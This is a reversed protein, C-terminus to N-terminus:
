TLSMANGHTDVALGQPGSIDAATAPGHDGTYGAIGNGAFNSIIGMSNIKRIHGYSTVYVNGDFDVAVSSPKGLNALTAASDDGGYGDVGTGAITTIIGSTNVKRIRNNNLDAIYLNGAADIATSYPGSLKAGVAPISDGNYGGTSDGAVTTIIQAHVINTSSILLAFFFLQLLKNGM